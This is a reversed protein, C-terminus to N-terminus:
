LLGKMYKVLREAQALSLNSKSQNARWSIVRVNGPVYGKDNDTRDISYSDPSMKGANVVMPVLRIPCLDPISIDGPTITFAIGNKKARKRAMRLLYLAISTTSKLAAQKETAIKWTTMLCPICRYQLGDTTGQCKWFQDLPKLELCRSCRKGM